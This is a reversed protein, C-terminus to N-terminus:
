ILNNDKLFRDDVRYIMKVDEIRLIKVAFKISPLGRCMFHEHAIFLQLLMDYDEVTLNEINYRIVTEIIKIM